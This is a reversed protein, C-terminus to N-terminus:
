NGPVWKSQDCRLGQWGVNCICSGNGRLGEQCLGHDCDCVPLPIVFHCSSSAQEKPIAGLRSDKGFAVRGSQASRVEQVPPGMAAWSVCRVPREMSDRKAAVNGM